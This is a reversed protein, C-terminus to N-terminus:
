EPQTRRSLQDPKAPANASSRESSNPSSGPITSPPLTDPMPSKSSNLMRFGNACCRVSDASSAPTTSATSCWRPLPIASLEVGSEHFRRLAGILKVFETTEMKPGGERIQKIQDYDGGAGPQMREQLWVMVKEVREYRFLKVLPVTARLLLFQLRERWDTREPSFTDALVIGAVKEPYTAAYAQVICGGMSLGCLVPNEIELTTLLADLDAVFLGIDYRSWDSGGTRGHGRVDYSVTAFEDSLAAVQPQWQTHDVIAGHVFVVPRGEGERVYYTEIDGTQVTGM